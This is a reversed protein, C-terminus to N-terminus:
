SDCNAMVLFM